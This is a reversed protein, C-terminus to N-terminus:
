SVTLVDGFDSLGVISDDDKAAERAEEFREYRAKGLKTTDGQRAIAYSKVAPGETFFHFRGTDNSNLGSFFGQRVLRLVEELATELDGDMHGEINIVLKM